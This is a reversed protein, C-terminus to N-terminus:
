FNSHYKLWGSIGTHLSKCDFGYKNLEEAANLSRRGSQCYCLITKTKDLKNLNQQLTDLSIHLGGLNFANREPHTRVDLLICNELHKLNDFEETTLEFDKKPSPSCSETYFSSNEKSLNNSHCTPCDPSRSLKINRFTLELTEVLLLTNKLPTPLETLWKIAENAQILGLIGPTVGLVGGSNCDPIDTPMEPFLCRFCATDPTFLACQGSFQHVSAFIWPTKLYSCYDNILYRTSFNDTCDLVIDAQQILKEANDTSLSSKITNLRIHSNLKQLHKQGQTVKLQGIDDETYLIQRQLNSVDVSDADVLTIKGIGAATLYLSAPSGLGGAGVILVHSNKLKSQGEAGMQPLQIHRTYRLWEKANFETPQNM